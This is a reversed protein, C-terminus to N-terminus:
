EREVGKAFARCADFGFQGSVSLAIEAVLVEFGFAEPQNALLPFQEVLRDSAKAQLLAGMGLAKRMM